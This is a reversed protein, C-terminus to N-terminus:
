FCGRGSANLQRAEAVPYAFRRSSKCLTTAHYNLAKTPATIGRIRLPFYKCIAILGTAPRASRSFKPAEIVGTGVELDQFYM